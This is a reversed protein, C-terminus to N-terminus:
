GPSRFWIHGTIVVVFLVWGIFSLGWPIPHSPIMRGNVGLEYWSYDSLTNVSNTFLAILEAPLFLLSVTSMFFPWYLLGWTPRM